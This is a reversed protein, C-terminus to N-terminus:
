GDAPASGPVLRRFEVSLSRTYAVCRAYDPLLGRAHAESLSPAAQDRPSLRVDRVPWEIALDPDLPHVCHEAAPNYTQSCLYTLTADDSLACIGHGLGEALYLARRDVEDLRVSEWRGFTPSGVRLDVVVDLIAGRTCTVYKAQGPPVDAFHLGRVVNRASVSMSGQALRLPHGTKEALLDFRYWELFMGRADRHQQPTIEWAGDIGLPRLKM